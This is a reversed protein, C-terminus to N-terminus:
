FLGTNVLTVGSPEYLTQISAASEYPAVMFELMRVTVEM